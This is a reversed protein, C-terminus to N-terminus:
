DQGARLRAAVGTSKMHKSSRQRKPRRGAVSCDRELTVEPRGGSWKIDEYRAACGAAMHLLLSLLILADGPPRDRPSVHRAARMRSYVGAKKRQLSGSVSAVLNHRAEHLYGCRIPWIFRRLSRSCRVCRNTDSARRWSIELRSSACSAFTTHNGIRGKLKSTATRCCFKAGSSLSIVM